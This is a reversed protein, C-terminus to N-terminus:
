ISVTKDKAVIEHLLKGPGVNVKVDQFVFLTEFDVQLIKNWNIALYLEKSFAM